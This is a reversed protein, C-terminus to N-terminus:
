RSTSSRRRRGLRLSPTRHPPSTRAPLRSLTHATAACAAHVSFARSLATSTLARASRVLFMGSMRTVSSTDWSSIDADFNKSYYFLHDMDTVSSTDWSSIDANFNQLPYFLYSMDTIASVCWDAIPGYNAIASAANSDFQTVATKLSAKSTFTHTSGSCVPKWEWAFNKITLTHGGGGGVRYKFELSQVGLPLRVTDSFTTLSHPAFPTTYVAVGDAFASFIGVQGKRYGWEQDKWQM